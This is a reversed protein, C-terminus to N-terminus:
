GLMDAEVVGWVGPEVVEVPVQDRIQGAIWETAARHAFLQVPLLADLLTSGDGGAYREPDIVVLRRVDTVQDDPHFRAGNILESLSM